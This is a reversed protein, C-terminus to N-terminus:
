PKEKPTGSVNEDRTKQASLVAIMEANASRHNAKARAALWDTLEKPLRATTRVM